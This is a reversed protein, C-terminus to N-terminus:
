GTKTKSVEGKAPPLPSYYGLAMTLGGVGMFSIIRSLTGSGSLDILFLKMVVIGLLMAGAFWMNREGKNSARVMLAMATMTWLVAVFTQAINSDFMAHLSYSVDFWHHIVKLMMCNLWFFALVAMIQKYSSAYEKGMWNSPNEYIRKTYAYIVGLCLIQAFDLPNLLPIYFKFDGADTFSILLMLPLLYTIPLRLVPYNKTFNIGEM